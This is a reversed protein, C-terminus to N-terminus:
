ARLMEMLDQRGIPKSLYGKVQRSVDAGPDSPMPCVVLPVAGTVRSRLVEEVAALATDGVAPDVLVGCPQLDEILKIAKERDSAVVCRYGELHRSFLRAAIHSPTWVVVPEHAPRIDIDARRRGRSIGIKRQVPLSFSFTSGAGPQSQVWIRGGHAEVLRRSIALGLGFGGQPTRQGTSIREFEQFLRTQEDVPIGQGTDVVACVVEDANVELSISVSGQDTHRVANSLLNLIVQKIRIRDIYVPPVESAIHRVMQLGRAAALSRVEEVAEDVLTTIDTETQAVIMKGADLQALDLVDDVLKQLHQANRYVTGLDVLFAPSLEVDAYAQPTSYMTEVFGLILNLPTRLEHSISAAFRSKAQRASEAIKRAEALRRNAIALRENTEDMSRLTRNLDQQRQRLQDTLELSRRTSQDAWSLALMLHRQALWSAMTTLLLLAVSWEVDTVDVASTPVLHELALLGGALMLSTGLQPLLGFLGAVALPVLCVFYRLPSAPYGCVALLAAASLCAVLLVRGLRRYRLTTVASLLGGVMLVLSTYLPWNSKQAMLAALIMTVWALLFTVALILRYSRQYVDDLDLASPRGAAQTALIASSM